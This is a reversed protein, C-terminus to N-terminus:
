DDDAGTDVPPHGQRHGIMPRSPLRSLPYGKRPGCARQVGGRLSPGGMQHHDLGHREAGPHFGVPLLRRRSGQQRPLVTGRRQQPLPLQPRRSNRLQRHFARRGATHPGRRHPRTTSLGVPGTDETVTISLEREDTWDVWLRLDEDVCLMEYWTDSPSSYRHIREIFLFREDFEVSYGSITLVDGVRAARISEDSPPALPERKKKGRGFLSRLM